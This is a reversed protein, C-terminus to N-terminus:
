DHNIKDVIQIDQPCQSKSLNQIIYDSIHHPKVENNTVEIFATIKTGYDDDEYTDLHVDVINKHKFLVNKIQSLSINEGGSIVVDDCRGILFLFKDKIFGIDSTVLTNNGLKDPAITPSQIILRNNDTTIRVNKFKKGVSDIKDPFQHLWFGSIGSCTETMGYSKYIPVNNKLARKMLQSSCGDGGIIIGRFHSPFSSGSRNDLLRKLMSPVLSILTAGNDIEYNIQSANFKNMVITEFGKIQSRIIISLGAIHNLPLCQIYKDSHSFQIEMDWLDVSSVFNNFTLEVLKPVNTTGSTLHASQVADLNFINKEFEVPACGGYSSSLEQVYHCLKIDISQVQKKRLWETILFNINYDRITKQLLSTSIDSPFIIPVLNLQICSFYIEIIDIPNSLFIGVMSHNPINLNKLSRSKTCVNYYFESFTIQNNKYSIFHRDTYKIHSNEIYHKM